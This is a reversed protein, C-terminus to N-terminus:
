FQELFRMDGSQFLRIDEIGYRLMVFRELGFGFAFGQYRRTDIRGAKLVNPHVMGSGGIELWGSHKCVRCGKGKCLLCSVEVNLGPEVFPYFKPRYRVRIDKGFLHQVFSEVVGKLNSLAIKEDIMMGEIQHFTHEHRVDTAENRFCRGPAIMRIPAGYERMARIQVSSTQTRLVHDETTYFTDQMDRAPHDKPINVAQFNYYDTEVEPGDLVMFGMSSFFVSLEHIIQTIPHLHGIPTKKGPLTYDFFAESKKEKGFSEKKKEFEEHLFIKVENAIRGIEPRLENPIEKMEKFLRALEGNRGLYQIEFDRFTESDRVKEIEELFRTKLENFKEKM